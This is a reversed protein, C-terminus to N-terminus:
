MNPNRKAKKRKSYLCTDSLHKKPSTRKTYATHANKKKANSCIGAPRKTEILALTNKKEGLCKRFQEVTHLYTHTLDAEDIRSDTLSLEITGIIWIYGPRKSLIYSTSRQIMRGGESGGEGRKGVGRISHLEDTMSASIVRNMETIYLAM